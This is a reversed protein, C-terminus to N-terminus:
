RLKIYKNKNNKYYKIMIDGGGIAPKITEERYVLIFNNVFNSYNTLKDLIMNYMYLNNNSINYIKRILKEQKIIGSYTFYPFHIEIVNSLSNFM